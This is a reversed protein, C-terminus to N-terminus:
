EPDRKVDTRPYGFAKLFPGSAERIGQIGNVIAIAEEEKERSERSRLVIGDQNYTNPIYQQGHITRIRNSNTNRRRFMRDPDYRNNRNTIKTSGRRNKRETIRSNDQGTNNGATRTNGRFTSSNHNSSESLSDSDKDQESSDDSNEENGRISLLLNLNAEDVTTQNAISNNEMGDHGSRSIKKEKISRGRKTQIIDAKVLRRGWALLTRYAMRMEMELRRKGGRNQKMKRRYEMECIADAVGDLIRIGERSIYALEEL